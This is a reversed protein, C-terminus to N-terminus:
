EVDSISINKLEFHTLQRVGKLELMKVFVRLPGNETCKGTLTSNPELSITIAYESSETECSLCKGDYWLEKEFSITKATSNKNELTLLNYQKHTGNRDDDCNTLQASITIGGEAYLITTEQGNSLLPNFVMLFILAVLLTFPIIPTRM